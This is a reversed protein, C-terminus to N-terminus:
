IDLHPPILQSDNARWTSNRQLSRQQAANTILGPRPANPIRRQLRRISPGNRVLRETENIVKNETLAGAAGHANMDQFQVFAPLETEFDFVSQMSAHQAHFM